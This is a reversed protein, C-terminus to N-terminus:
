GNAGGAVSIYRAMSLRKALLKAEHEGRTGKLFKEAYKELATEIMLREYSNLKATNRANAM